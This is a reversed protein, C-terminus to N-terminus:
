MGPQLGSAPTPSPCLASKQSPARSAAQDGLVQTWPIGSMPLNHQTWPIGLMHLNHEEAVRIRCGLNHMAPLSTATSRSCQLAPNQSPKLLTLLDAAASATSEGDTEKVWRRHRQRPSLFCTGSMCQFWYPAHDLMSIGSHVLIHDPNLTASFGAMVCCLILSFDSPQHLPLAM